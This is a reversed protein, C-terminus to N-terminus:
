IEGDKPLLPANITVTNPYKLGGGTNLLVIRDDPKIAGNALLKRAAALTAAGEPCVYLGENKALLIQADLIEEDSVAIAVGNAAYLAELVLFDGLAKPVNIGFAITSSNACFESATKGENYAKVIPDCGSAQVAILRPMKDILGVDLLELMAKYIGILGVGGGTPYFIADPTQWGLQEVIELAMTKKGEIRYPEKLTSADYFGYRDIAKAVVRGADSILGDILYLKAGSVACEARTIYPAEKPMVITAQVGAKACYLAWAAGANGNTPMALASVGLEKARSVGLAAGRSKFSGGPNLGEDKLLLRKFGFKEGIKKLAILPTIVEGLSVINAENKIPLFEKYRWLNYPRDSLKNKSFNAKIKKLDYRVL